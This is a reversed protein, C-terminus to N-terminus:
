EIVIKDDDVYIYAHEYVNEEERDIEMVINSIRLQVVDLTSAAIIAEKNGKAGAHALGRLTGIVIINDAAIVEAGSNVDGIIVISGEVEIKQGSRLSGKHFTTESTGVDKKYSRTISHLGLTTPTDFSIEVDIQKKILEKIEELEKNTLIKGTVRIPTKEDKYMKKLEKLKKTLELIIKEQEANDEIKIIVEDTKLNISVSNM